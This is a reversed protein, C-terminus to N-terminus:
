AFAESTFFKKRGTAARATALLAERMAGEGRGRIDTDVYAQASNLAALLAASEKHYGYGGAYGSGAGLAEKGYIWVCSYCRGGGDNSPWYFRATVAEAGSNACIISIQRYFGKEKRHSPNLARAMSKVNVKM